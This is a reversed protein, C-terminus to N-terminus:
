FKIYFTVTFRKSVKGDLQLPCQFVRKISLLKCSFVTLYIQMIYAFALKQSTNLHLWIQQLYFVMIYVRMFTRCIINYIGAQM